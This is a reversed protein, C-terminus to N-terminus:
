LKRTLLLPDYSSLTIIMELSPPSEQTRSEREAQFGEHDNSGCSKTSPKKRRSELTVLHVRSSIAKRRKKRFTLFFFFVFFGFLLFGSARGSPRPRRREVSMWVAPYM